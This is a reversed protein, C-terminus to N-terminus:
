YVQERITVSEPQIDAPARVVISQAQGRVLGSRKLRYIATSHDKTRLCYHSSSRINKVRKIKASLAM